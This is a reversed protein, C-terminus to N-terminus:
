VEILIGEQEPMEIEYNLSQKLEKKNLKSKVDERLYNFIITKYEKQHYIIKSLCEMDPHNFRHGNTSILYKDSKCISFFEKDTNNKSGHHSVKVLDVKLNDINKDSMYEKLANVVDKGNADGLFLIKKDFIEILFAISSNNVVSNKNGDYDALKEIDLGNNGCNNQVRTAIYDNSKIFKYFSNIENTDYKLKVDRMHAIWALFLENVREINPSLLIIKGLGNLIKIEKYKKADCCILTHNKNWVELYNEYLYNSITKAKAYGVEGQKGKNESIHEMTTKIKKYEYIKYLDNFWIEKIDIKPIQNLIELAGGIHDEDIHTLILMDLKKLEKEKLCNLYTRKFGCDILIRYTEMDNIIELLFSDGYSAPFSTVEVKKM